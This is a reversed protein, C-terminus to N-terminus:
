SYLSQFLFVQIENKLSDPHKPQLGFFGIRVLKFKFTSLPTLHIWLVNLLECFQHPRLCHAKLPLFCPLELLQELTSGSSHSLIFWRRDQCENLIWIGSFSIIPRAKCKKQPHTPAYPVM